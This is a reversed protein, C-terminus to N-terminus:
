LMTKSAYYRRLNKKQISEKNRLYYRMARENVSRRQEEPTIHIKKRGMYLICILSKLLLSFFTLFSPKKTGQTFQHLGNRKLSTSGLPISGRVKQIGNLREVLQAIGGGGDREVAKQPGRVGDQM